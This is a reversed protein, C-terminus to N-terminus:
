SKSVPASIQDMTPPPATGIGVATAACPSNKTVLAPLGAIMAELIAMGANEDYAPLLLGDGAFLFSPVDTRGGLFKVRQYVGLRKAMRRFPEANDEGLVYLWTRRYIEPPM